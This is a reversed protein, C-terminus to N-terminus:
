LQPCGHNKTAFATLVCSNEEEEEEEKKTTESSLNIWRSIRWESHFTVKTYVQAAAGTAYFQSLASSTTPAERNKKMCPILLSSFTLRFSIPLTRVM